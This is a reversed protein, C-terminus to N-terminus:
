EHTLDLAQQRERAQAELILRALQTRCSEPMDLFEAGIEYEAADPLAQCRKIRAYLLMGLHTETFVLKLALLQDPELADPCTFNLGGESLNIFQSRGQELKFSDAALTSAILEIKRNLMNFCAEVAPQDEGLRHLYHSAEAEIDRLQSQLLFYPSVAFQDPRPSLKVQSEAVRQYEIVVPHDIRYFQRRETM